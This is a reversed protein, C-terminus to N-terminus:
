DFLSPYLAQELAAREKPHLARFPARSQGDQALVTWEHFGRERVIYNGASALSVFRKIVKPSRGRTVVSYHTM